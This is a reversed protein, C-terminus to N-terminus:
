AAKPLSVQAVNEVRTLACKTYVTKGNIVFRLTVYEIDYKATNYALVEGESGVPIRIHEFAGSLCGLSGSGYLMGGTTKIKTM